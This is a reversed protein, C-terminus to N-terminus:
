VEEARAAQIKDRVQNNIERAVEPTIQQDRLDAVLSALLLSVDQGTRLNLVRRSYEARSTTM